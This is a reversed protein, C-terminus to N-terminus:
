QWQALELLREGIQPLDIVDVAGDLNVLEGPMGWVVASQKSEAITHGGLTRLEAIAAAGDNGMGTMLVGVLREAPVHEIASRVLRDVSPHWRHEPDAPTAIATLMKNRRTLLVDADGRGIYVHGAEIPTPKTVEVVSLECLKDLRRSLPGTFSAPMHQAVVIPWPFNKPLASLVADLAPPGGTSTGILVVCDGALDTDVKSSRQEAQEAPRSTHAEARFRVREALRRTARVKVFAAARVREVILPALEDAHLSITGQPKPIFDIAGMELARLTEDAGHETLSSVMVVPCPYEVMIRDLCALGDMKPMTIDLTVVNPKFDRMTDLAEAGDRASAIEFDTEAEFIRGLFRRMLASDDVILLRIV